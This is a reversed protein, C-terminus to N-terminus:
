KSAEWWEYLPHRRGVLYNARSEVDRLADSLISKEPRATEAWHKMLEPTSILQTEPYHRQCLRRAARDDTAIAWNHHVAIAM